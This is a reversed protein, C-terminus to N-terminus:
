KGSFIFRVPPMELPFVLADIRVQIRLNEKNGINGGVTGPVCDAKNAV